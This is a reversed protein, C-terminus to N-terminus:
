GGPGSPPRGRGSGPRRRASSRRSSRRSRPHAPRRRRRVDEDVVAVARHVVQQRRPDMRRRAEQLALLRPRHDLARSGIRAEADRQEDAVVRSGPVRAPRDRVGVRSRRDLGPEVAPRGALVAEVREGEPRPADRDAQDGAVVREGLLDLGPQGHASRTTTLVATPPWAAADTWGDTAASRTRAPASRATRRAAAPSRSRRRTPGGTTM